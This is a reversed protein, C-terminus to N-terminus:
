SAHHQISFSVILAQIVHLLQGTFKRWGTLVEMQVFIMGKDGSPFGAILTKHFDLEAPVDYNPPLWQCAGGGLNISLARSGQDISLSPPTHLIFQKGNYAASQLYHYQILLTICTCLFPLLGRTSLHPKFNM